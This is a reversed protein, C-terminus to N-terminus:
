STQCCGRLWRWTFSCAFLAIPCALCRASPAPPFTLARVDCSLVLHIRKGVRSGRARCARRRRCGRRDVGSRSGARRQLRPASPGCEHALDNVLGIEDVAHLQGQELNSPEMTLLCSTCLGAEGSPSCNGDALLASAQVACRAADLQLAPRLLEGVSLDALAQAYRPFAVNWFGGPTPTVGPLLGVGTALRSASMVLGMRYDDWCQELSYDAVGRETLLSHYNQLLRDEHGRREAIDLYSVLFRALHPRATRM